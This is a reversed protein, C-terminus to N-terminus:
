SLTLLYTKLNTTKNKLDLKRRINERHFEVTGKKIDLSDAVQKTTFGNRILYAVEVEKATLGLCKSTLAKAFPSIIDKLKSQIIGTHREREKASCSRIREVHPMILEKVSAMINEELNQRDKERQDLMVKLTINSEELSESKRELERERKKVLAEARKMGTIDSLSVVARGTGPIEDVTVMVNRVDGNKNIARLEYTKPVTASDTKRLSRYGKIREIEDEDAVLEM